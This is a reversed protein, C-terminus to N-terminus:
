NGALLSRWGGSLRAADRAFLIFAPLWILDNTVIILGFALPLDGVALSWAFGIPGLVKGILGIVVLHRHEFPSRAAWWYAVGFLLVFMGTVQWVGLYSPSPVGAIDWIATPALITLSGWALNYVAAAILWPRYRRLQSTDHSPRSARVRLSNEADM